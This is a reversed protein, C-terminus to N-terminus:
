RSDGLGLKELAADLMIGSGCTLQWGLLWALEM